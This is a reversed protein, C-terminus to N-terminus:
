DLRSEEAFAAPSLGTSGVSIAQALEAVAAHQTFTFLRRVGDRLRLLDRADSLLCADIQPEVTPDASALRLSGPSFCQRVAAMVRAPDLGGDGDGHRHNTAFVLMDNRGAGALGSTYRLCVQCIRDHPSTAQGAPTLTLRVLVRPHDRLNQGVGPLDQVVT